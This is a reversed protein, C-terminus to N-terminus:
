GTGGGVLRYSAFTKGGRTVSDTNIALGRNRLDKIRAALRVSGCERLADMPTVPGQKLMELITDTQTKM